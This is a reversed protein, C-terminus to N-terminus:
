LDKTARSRKVPWLSAYKKQYKLDTESAILM